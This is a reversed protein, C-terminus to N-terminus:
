EPTFATAPIDPFLVAQEPFKKFWDGIFTPWFRSYDKEKLHEELYHPLCEQLWETQENSTWRAAPMVLDQADFSTVALNFTRVQAL